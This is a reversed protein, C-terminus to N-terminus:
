VSYVSNMSLHLFRPALDYSHYENLSHSFPSLQFTKAEFSRKYAEEFYGWESGILHVVYKLADAFQM